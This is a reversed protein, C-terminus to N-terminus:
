QAPQTAGEGLPRSSTGSEAAVGSGKVLAAEIWNFRDQVGYNGGFDVELTITKASGLPALIVPSIEGATFSKREHVVKGDLLVRVTVDAYQGAGEMAYQTRFTQYEGAPIAWSLKSHPAVGIGRAFTRDGFQIRRGSVSRDMKAPRATELMPAHVNETPTRSSLWSVPGNLQEVGNVAAMPVQRVGGGSLTLALNEGASKLSAATIVSQDRLKVRFARGSDRTTAAGTSALLMSAVSDMPVPTANGGAQVTISAAAIESVIGRVTDGNALMVVDETRAQDMAQPVAVGRAMAKVQRLSVGMDGVAPSTWHLTEGELKAPEGRLQDGGILYLVFKGAPQAAAAPDVERELLLLEDWRVASGDALKVGPADVAAVDVQRSRFDAATLTWKTQALAPSCFLFLILWLHPVSSCLHFFRFRM